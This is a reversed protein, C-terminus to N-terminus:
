AVGGRTDVAAREQHQSLEWLWQAVDATWAFRGRRGPVQFVPFGVKNRRMAQRMAAANPFGAVHALDAGGIMPGYRSM